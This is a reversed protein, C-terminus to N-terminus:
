MLISLLLSIAGNNWFSRKMKSPTFKRVLLLLALVWFLFTAFVPPTMEKFLSIIPSRFSLTM